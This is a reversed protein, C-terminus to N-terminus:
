LSQEVLMAYGAIDHWHDKHDANGNLIRAIKHCIMELAENQMDSLEVEYSWIVAKLQQSIEAHTAFNGHTKQRDKLTNHLTM